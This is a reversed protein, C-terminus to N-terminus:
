EYHEEESKNHEGLLYVNEGSSLLSIMHNKVPHQNWIFSDHSAGGFSADVSLINLDADCIILVNRSHFHKRNFFREENETPRVISIHTGDICGLVAPINFKEYFRRKIADREQRTQPFRIWKGLINPNNLADTVERIARSVSQQSMLTGYTGGVLKQYSGTAYFSLALLIRMCHVLEKEELHVGLKTVVSLVLHTPNEGSEEPIGSLEVDNALLEQDRDNLDAQLQNVTSELKLIEIKLGQSSYQEQSELITQVTNELKDLRADCKSVLNRIDQLEERFARFEERTQRMEERFCRLEEGLNSVESSNAVTITAPKILTTDKNCRKEKLKCEPCAWSPMLSAGVPIGVCARHLQKNCKTCTVNAGDQPSMYKGCASYKVAM